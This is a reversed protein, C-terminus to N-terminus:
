DILFYIPGLALYEVWDRWSRCHHYYCSCFTFLSILFYIVLLGVLIEM